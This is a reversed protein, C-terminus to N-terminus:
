ATRAPPTPPAPPPPPHPAPALAGAVDTLAQAQRDPDTISRATPEAQDHHGAGALAGAVRALAQAQQDPDSISTALAEARDTQGIAAWVAPLHTPINTNRDTLQDRHYALHLAATM